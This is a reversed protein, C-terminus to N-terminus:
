PTGPPAFPWSSRAGRWPVPAEWGPFGRYGSARRRRRPRFAIGGGQKMRQVKEYLKQSIAAASELYDADLKFILALLLADIALAGCGLLGARSVLPGGHDHPQFGRVAGSPGNGTWSSRFQHAMESPSQIPAQWLMQALGAFVMVGISLLVMRRRATYAHEAVIQGLFATTM